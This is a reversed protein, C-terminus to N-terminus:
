EVFTIHAITELSSIDETTFNPSHIQLQIKEAGTHRSLFLILGKPDVIVHSKICIRSLSPLRSELGPLANLIHDIKGREVASMDRYDKGSEELHLVELSVPYELIRAWGKWPLDVLELSTLIGGKLKAFQDPSEINGPPSARIAMRTLLSMDGRFTHTVQYDGCEELRMERLRMNSCCTPRLVVNRLHLSRLQELSGIGIPDRFWADVVQLSELNHIAGPTFQYYDWSGLRLSNLRPTQLTVNLYCELRGWGILDVSEVCPFELSIIRQKPYMPYSPQHSRLYFATIRVSPILSVPYTSLEIDVENAIHNIALCLPLNRSRAIYEELRNGNEGRNELPLYKRMDLQIFTWLLSIDLTIQRWQSTVSGLILPINPFDTKKIDCEYDRLTSEFTLKFIERLIEVPLRATHDMTASEM